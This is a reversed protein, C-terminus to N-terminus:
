DLPPQDEDVVQYSEILGEEAWGWSGGVHRMSVSDDVASLDLWLLEDWLDFTPGIVPVEDRVAVASVRVTLNDQAWINVDLALPPEGAEAVDAKECEVLHLREVATGTPAGDGFVVSCRRLVVTRASTTRLLGPLDVPDVLDSAHLSIVSDLRRLVTQAPLAGDNVELVQLSEFAEPDDFFETLDVRGNLVLTEVATFASGLGRASSRIDLDADRLTIVPPLEQGAPLDSGDINATVARLSTLDAIRALSTADMRSSFRIEDLVLQQLSRPDLAAWEEADIVVALAVGKAGVGAAWVTNVSPLTVAVPPELNINQLVEAMPSRDFRRWVVPQSLVRRALERDASLVPAVLKAAAPTALACL